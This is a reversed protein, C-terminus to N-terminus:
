PRRRRIFTITLAGLGILMASTSPEPVVKLIGSTALASTDWYLGDGLDIGEILTFSGTITDWGSLITITDGLMATYGTNDIILTGDLNLTNAGDGALQDYEGASAGTVEINVEATSELTVNDVFTLTGASNGPTLIGAISTNGGIIGSGGLTAGSLVVFDGSAASQDGNVILTGDSVSTGATYTNAGGLTLTGAGQKNFGAADGTYDSIVGNITTNNEITLTRLAGGAYAIRVDANTTLNSGTFSVNGILRISSNTLTRAGVSNIIGGNLILEGTGLAGDAELSLTTTNGNLLLQSVFTNTTQFVVTGNGDVTLRSNVNTSVDYLTRQLVLTSGSTVTWAQQGQGMNMRIPADITNTGSTQGTTNIGKNGLTIISGDSDLTWGGTETLFQIGGIDAGTSLYPQNATTTGSFIALDFSGPVGNTWNAIDNYVTSNAGTWTSDAAPSPTASLALLLASGLSATSIFRVPYKRKM